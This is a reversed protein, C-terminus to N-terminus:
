DNALLTVSIPMSICSKNCIMQKLRENLCCEVAKKYNKNDKFEIDIYLGRQLKTAGEAGEVNLKIKIRKYEEKGFLDVLEKRVFAEIDMKTYLRDNTLTYYRLQEYRSDADAKNRGGMAGVIVPVIQEMAPLKRNELKHNKDSEPAVQLLNGLEGQTSIFSVKTSLSPPYQNINKMVYTGSDFQYKSNQVGVSKGIKNILERLRRIDEGDKLGNYEIFAYYDEVFRNYLNRVDRYLDGNNYCSADFDRVVIEESSFDFGHKHLGNSTELIQLFFSGEQKQLKAIPSSQTLTVYDVSVNVVPLTNLHVTYEDPVRYGEPYEIQLWLTDPDFIDLVESELWSRFFSPFSKKKFIDRDKRRDSIYFLEGHPLQTLYNKWYKLIPMFKGTAQQADFPELMELDEVQQMTCFQIETTEKSMVSIKEPFVNDCGEVYISFDSLSDIEATTNIGMWVINHKEMSVEVSKDKSTMRNKTIVYVDDYPILTNKFIPMYEVATKNGNAKYTFSIGSNITVVESSKGKKFLPAVLAIAPMANVNERPIFCDCLHDVIKNGMNEIRDQIKVSEHTLAVLMMRAIPDMLQYDLSDTSIGELYDTLEKIKREIESDM